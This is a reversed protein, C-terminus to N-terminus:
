LKGHRKGYQRGHALGAPLMDRYLAPLKQFGDGPRIGNHKILGAGEGAGAGLHHPYDREAPVLFCLHQTQRGAQLFMKGVRYGVGNHLLCLAPAESVFLEVGLDIIQHRVPNGAGDPLLTYEDAAGVKNKLVFATRNGGSLLFLEVGQRQFVGVQIQCDVPLQRSDDADGIRQPLFRRVNKGGQAPKPYLLGNHQGTVAPARGFRNSGMDPDIIETSLHQRLILCIIYRRQPRLSM